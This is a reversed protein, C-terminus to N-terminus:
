SAVSCDQKEQQAREMAEHSRQLLSAANDGKRWEAIGFRSAEIDALHSLKECVKGALKQADDLRTEPLVMVFSGEEFHGVLDAWRLQDKLLQSISRSVEALNCGQKLEVTMQSISLSNNYRRSRSVLPDLSLLLARRTLLGTNPEVLRTNEVEAQLSNVQQQLTHLTTQDAYYHIVPLAEDAGSQIHHTLFRSQGQGNSLEITQGATLLAGVRADQTDLQQMELLETLLTNSWVAKGQYEILVALPFDGLVSTLDLQNLIDKVNDSM